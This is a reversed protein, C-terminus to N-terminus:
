SRHPKSVMCKGPEVRVSYAAIYVPLQSSIVDHTTLLNQDGDNIAAVLGVPNLSNVSQSIKSSVNNSLGLPKYVGFTAPGAVGFRGCNLNVLDGGLAAETGLIRLKAPFPHAVWWVVPTMPGVMHPLQTSPMMYGMPINVQIERKRKSFRVDVPFRVGLQLKLSDRAVVLGALGLVDSILVDHSIIGEWDHASLALARALDGTNSSLILGGPTLAQGIVLQSVVPHIHMDVAYPNANESFNFSCRLSSLTGSMANWRLGLARITTNLNHIFVKNPEVSEFGLGMHHLDAADQMNGVVSFDGHAASLCAPSISHAVSFADSICRMHAGLLRYKVYFGDASLQSFIGSRQNYGHRAVQSIFSDIV